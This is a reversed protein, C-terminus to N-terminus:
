KDKIMKLIWVNQSEPQVAEATPSTRSCTWVHGGVNPSTRKHDANSIGKCITNRQIGIVMLLQLLWLSPINETMKNRRNLGIETELFRDWPIFICSYDCKFRLIVWENAFKTSVEGSYNDDKVVWSPKLIKDIVSLKDHDQLVMSWRIYSYAEVMSMNLFLTLKGIKEYIGEYKIKTPILRWKMCNGCPVVYTGITNKWCM